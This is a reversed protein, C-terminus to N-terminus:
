QWNAEWEAVLEATLEPHEASLDNIEGPDVSIDYLSWPPTPGMGMGGGPPGNNIAKYNGRIIAGTTGASWGAVDAADYEDSSGNGVFVGQTRTGNAETWGTYPVARCPIDDASDGIALRTTSPRWYNVPVPELRTDHLGIENFRDLLYQETKLGEEYGPRRIGFSVIREIEALM